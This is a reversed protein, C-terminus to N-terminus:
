FLRPSFQTLMGHLLSGEGKRKLERVVPLYRTAHEPDELFSALSRLYGSRRAVIFSERVARPLDLFQGLAADLTAADDTVHGKIHMLLNHDHDSVVQSRAGVLGRLLRRIEEVVEDEELLTMEKSQVKEYLPIGETLFMTRLRVHHPNIAKLVRATERAHAESLAKGGLGPMVYCCVEFGADVVRKIGTLHHEARAGKQVLDLVEDSGSELGVHIRTLGAERLEALQEPKKVFLTRSRAYTTVRDVTPFRARLHRLIRAVRHYPIVLTDGDQLFVHRGGRHMWLAVRRVDYSCTHDHAIAMFAGDSIESEDPGIGTRARVEAAADALLDIEATVEEETRKEFRTGKYVPCFLCGNWPCNRTVRILLSFAESPPRIPGVDCQSQHM